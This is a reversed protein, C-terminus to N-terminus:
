VPGFGGAEVTLPPLKMSEEHVARYLQESLVLQAAAQVTVDGRLVKLVRLSGGKRLREEDLKHISILKLRPERALLGGPGTLGHRISPCLVEWLRGKFGIYGRGTSDDFLVPHEEMGGIVGFDGM